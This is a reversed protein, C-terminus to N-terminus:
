LHFGEQSWSKLAEVVEARAKDPQDAALWIVNLRTRLDMAAFLNGQELAASLLSPVQRSVEALEGLLILASLRYRNSITQEWATGTCRERWIDAAADCLDSAKRWNGSLNAIMGRAFISLGIVYPDNLRQAIEEAKKVIQESREGVGGRAAAFIAEFALARSVRFPEGSRLALLLHRSQFDAGRILDVSGLGAAVAWCTDLRVLDSELIQSEKRETFKLGRLR